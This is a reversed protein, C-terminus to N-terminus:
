KVEKILALAANENISYQAALVKAINDDSLAAYARLNKVLKIKDSNENLTKQIRNQQKSPKIKTNTIVRRKLDKSSRIATKARKGNILKKIEKKTQRVQASIKAKKDKQRARIIATELMQIISPSKSDIESAVRLMHKCAIGNLRANREKPFGKEQRGEAYNGLTALYRFVFTHRDCSCNFKVQQRRLWLAANKPTKETNLVAEDFKIFRVEQFHRKEGHDKSANTTFRMVGSLFSTPVAFKIEAKAKDIDSKGSWDKKGKKKEAETPKYTYKKPDSVSLDIIQRATVGGKYKNKANKITATLAKLDSETIERIEGGLTTKLAREFDYDGSLDDPFLIRESAAERRVRDARFRERAESTKGSLDGFWDKDVM